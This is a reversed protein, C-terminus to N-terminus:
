NASAQKKGPYVSLGFISLFMISTGYTLELYTITNLSAQEKGFVPALNLRALLVFSM